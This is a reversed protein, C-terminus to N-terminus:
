PKSDPCYLPLCEQCIGSSVRAPPNRLFEPVWDWYNDHLRKTRRCQACMLVLQGIGYDNDTSRFVPYPIDGHTVLRHEIALLATAPIPSIHMCFKRFVDPSNCEYDATVLEHKERAREFLKSFHYELFGPSVASCRRAASEPLSPPSETTPSPSDIGPQIAISSPSPRTLFARPPKM